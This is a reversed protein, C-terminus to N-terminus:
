LRNTPTSFTRFDMSFCIRWQDLTKRSSDWRREKRDTSRPLALKGCGNGMSPFSTAGIPSFGRFREPVSGGKCVLPFSITDVSFGLRLPRPARDGLTLGSSLSASRGSLLATVNRTAAPSTLLLYSRRAPLWIREVAFGLLRGRYLADGFRTV